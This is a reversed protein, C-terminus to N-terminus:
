DEYIPVINIVGWQPFNNEAWQTIADFAKATSEANPDISLLQMVLAFDAPAQISLESNTSPRVLSIVWECGSMDIADFNM